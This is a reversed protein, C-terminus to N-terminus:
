SDLDLEIYGYTDLANKIDEDSTIKNWIDWDDYSLIDEDKESILLCSKKTPDAVFTLIKKKIPEFDKNSIENNLEGLSSLIDKIHHQFYHQASFLNRFGEYKNGLSRINDGYTTEIDWRGKSNETIWFFRDGIKTGYSGINGEDDATELIPEWEITTPIQISEKIHLKMM